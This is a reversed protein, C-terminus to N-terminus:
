APEGAPAGEQPRNDRLRVSRQRPLVAVVRDRGAQKAEYMAGDARDLLRWMADAADEGDVPRVLAIGISATVAHGNETRSGAVAGRLREAFRAAEASDSVLGLVVLEEGGIRALVDSPRVTASLSAAVARLVADGAAHGHSDNLQKFHDLDLVM